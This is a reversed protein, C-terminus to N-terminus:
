SQNVHMARPGFGLWVNAHAFGTEGAVQGPKVRAALLDVVLIRTTVFCCSRRKYLEIRELSPVQRAGCAFTTSLDSLM